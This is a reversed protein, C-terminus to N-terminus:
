YRGGVPAEKKIQDDYKGEMIKTVADPSIFWDFSAVWNRSNEGLCFKSQCIKTIAQKWNNAFFEEKLRVNLHQRRKDSIQLCNKLQPSANWHELILAMKSSPSLGNSGGEGGDEVVGEGGDLSSMQKGNAECKILMDNDIPEPFKSKSRTQQGFKPVTLYKGGGYIKILGVSICEDLFKKVDKETVSNLRLPYCAGRLTAPHAFFRGYDDAVTMLRRYFLEARESINNIPESSIIGERIIRTPM